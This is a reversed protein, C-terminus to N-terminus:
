SLDLLLNSPIDDLHFASVSGEGQLAVRIKAMQDATLALLPVIVLVIREVFTAVMCLIHSKGSGTRNIVLLKGGCVELFCITEVAEEQKPRCTPTNWVCYSGYNLHGVFSGDAPVAADNTTLTPAPPLPSSSFRFAHEGANSAAEIAREKASALLAIANRIQLGEFADIAARCRTELVSGLSTRYYYQPLSPAHQNNM